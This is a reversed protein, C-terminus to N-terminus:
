RERGDARNQAFYIFGSDSVTHPAGILEAHGCWEAAADVIYRLADQWNDTAVGIVLAVPGADPLWVQAICEDWCGDRWAAIDCSSHSMTARLLLLPQGVKWDRVLGEARRGFIAALRELPSSASCCWRHPRLSKEIGRLTSQAIGAAAAAQLISMERGQRLTRVTAGFPVFDSRAPTTTPTTSM